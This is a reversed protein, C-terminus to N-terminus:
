NALFSYLSTEMASMIREKDFLKVATARAQDGYASRKEDDLSLAVIAETLAASNGPPVIIGCAKIVDAIESDPRVTAIVPKGSALMGGLKSPMALGDAGQGQPLLHIDAANLLENVKETPQLPVMTINPLNKALAEIRPREMGEGCLLFQIKQNKTLNRACQIITDLGQKKGMSGSYLAILKDGSIALKSRLQNPEHTPYIKNTNVWNPLCVIKSEAVNKEKLKTIMRCSITSVKEFRKIISKEVKIAFKRLTQIKIIGLSMAMDLEFDHIHLWSGAGSFRAFLHALPASFIAPAINIVVGPCWNRLAFFVPICSIAFSMLHFIRSYGTIKHPVWLPCRYVVVNNINETHYRYSRYGAGIKWSPYYPPATIVRVEHGRAALWESMESTYIGIGTLEPRYNIGVIIIKM